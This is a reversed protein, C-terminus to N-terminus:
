AARESEKEAERKELFRLRPLTIKKHLGTHTRYECLAERWPRFRDEEDLVKTM